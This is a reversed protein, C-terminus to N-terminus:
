INKMIVINSLLDTRLALVATQELGKKTKPIFWEAACKM